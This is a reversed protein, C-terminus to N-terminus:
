KKNSFLNYKIICYIARFGDEWSIKKGEAFSRGHYTIGVEYIRYQPNHGLKAIIEPDIGFRNEELQMNKLIESKYMKYCTHIDTLSQQTLINSIFTYIKNVIAHLIFPGRHPNSGRFRSGLVVDAYGDLIPKLMIIYDSPDYELDADQIIIFDGCVYPLATKICAGKGKNKVHTLSKIPFAPHNLLFKEIASQTNDTSGDNIIIVEKDINAFLKVQMVKMLVHDVYNEENYCPIVISLKYNLKM